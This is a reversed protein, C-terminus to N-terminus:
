GKPILKTKHSLDNLFIKYAGPEEGNKLIYEGLDPRVYLIHYELGLVRTLRLRKYFTPQTTATTVQIACIRGNKEARLDFPSYPFDLSLLHPNGFGESEL